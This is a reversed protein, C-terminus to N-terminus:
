LRQGNSVFQNAADLTTLRAPTPQLQFTDAGAHASASLHPQGHVPAFM